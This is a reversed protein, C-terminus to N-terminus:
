LELLRAAETLNQCTVVRPRHPYHFVTLINMGIDRGPEPIVRAVLAVGARGILNMMRGLEPTCDLGMSEMQSFDALLRFGPSLEGLQKTLEERNRQFEKLRVPGIYSILLLQKSKNSTVLLM